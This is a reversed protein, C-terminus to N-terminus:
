TQEQWIQPGLHSAFYRSSFTKIKTSWFHKTGQYWLNTVFETRLKFKRSLQYECFTIQRIKECPFWAPSPLPACYEYASDDYGCDDKTDDVDEFVDKRGDDDEAEPPTNPEEALFSRVEARM